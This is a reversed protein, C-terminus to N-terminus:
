STLPDLWSGFRSIPLTFVHSFSFFVHPGVASICASHPLALFSRLLDFRLWSVGFVFSCCFSVCFVKHLGHFLFRLRLTVFWNLAFAFTYRFLTPIFDGRSRMSAPLSRSGCRYVRSVYLVLSVLGFHGFFCGVFACILTSRLLIFSTVPFSALFLRSPPRACRLLVHVVCRLASSVYLFTHVLSLSIHPWWLRSIMLLIRLIFTFRLSVYVHVHVHLVPYVLRMFRSVSRLTFSCLLVCVCATLTCLRHTSRGHFHLHHFPTGCHLGFAPHTLPTSYRAHYFVLTFGCFVATAVASGHSTTCFVSFACRPCHLVSTTHFLRFVAVYFASFTFSIHVLVYGFFHLHTCLGFTFTRLYVLPDWFLTLTWFSFVCDLFLRASQLFTVPGFDLLVFLTHVCGFTWRLICSYCFIFATSRLIHIYLPPVFHLAVTIYRPWILVSVTSWVGCSFDWFHVASRSFTCFAHLFLLGFHRATFSLYGPFRNRIASFAVLVTVHVFDLRLTKVSVILRFNCHSLPQLGFTFQVVYSSSHGAWSRFSHPFFKHVTRFRAFAFRSSLSLRFSCSTFASFSSLFSRATSRSIFIFRGFLSCCILDNSQLQFFSLFYVLRSSVHLFTHPFYFSFLYGVFRLSFHLRHTSHLPLGTLIVSIWHLSSQPSAFRHRGTRDCLSGVVHAPLVCTRFM